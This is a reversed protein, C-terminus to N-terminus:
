ICANKQLTTLYTTKSLYSTKYLILQKTYTTKKLFLDYYTTKFSILQKTYTRLLNNQM